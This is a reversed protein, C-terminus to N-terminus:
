RGSAPVIALVEVGLRAEIDAPVRVTRDLIAALVLLAIAIMTGLVAYIAVTMVADRLRPEAALPARPQDVVRLRQEVV